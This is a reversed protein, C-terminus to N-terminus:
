ISEDCYEQIRREIISFDIYSRIQSCRVYFDTKNNLYEEFLFHNQTFNSAWFGSVFETKGSLVLFLDCSVLKPFACMTCSYLTSVANHFFEINMQSSCQAQWVVIEYDFKRM